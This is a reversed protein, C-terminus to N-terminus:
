EAGLIEEIELSTHHNGAGTLDTQSDEVHIFDCSTQDDPGAFGVVIGV